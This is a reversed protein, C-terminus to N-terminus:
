PIPCSSRTARDWQMTLMPKASDGTVRGIWERTTVTGGTSASARIRLVEGLVPRPADRIDVDLQGSYVTISDLWCAIDLGRWGPIQRLEMVSELPHTRTSQRLQDVLSSAINATVGKAQLFAVLPGANATNLDLRGAERSVVITVPIGEFEWLQPVAIKPRRSVQEDSLTSITNVIAADAAAQVRALDFARHALLAEVRAIYAVTAALGSLLMLLWFVTVLAIGASRSRPRLNRSCKRSLGLNM